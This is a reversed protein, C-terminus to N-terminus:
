QNRGTDNQGSLTVTVNANTTGGTWVFLLTEGARIEIDGSTSTDDNGNPTNDLLATNTEVNKYLSCETEDTSDSSVVYREVTWKSGWVGPGLSVSARGAANFRGSGSTELPIRM